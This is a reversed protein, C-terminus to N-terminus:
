EFKLTRVNTDNYVGFMFPGSPEMTRLDSSIKILEDIDENESASLATFLNDAM